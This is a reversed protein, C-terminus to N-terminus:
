TMPADPLIHTVATGAINSLHASSRLSSRKGALIHHLSTVAPLDLHCGLRIQNRAETDIEQTNLLHITNPANCCMTFPFIHSKIDHSTDTVNTYSSTLSTDNKSACTCKSDKYSSSYCLYWRRSILASQLIRYSSCILLGQVTSCWMHQTM